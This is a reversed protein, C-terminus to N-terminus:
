SESVIDHWIWLEVLAPTVIDFPAKFISILGDASYEASTITEHESEIVEAWVLENLIVTEHLELTGLKM